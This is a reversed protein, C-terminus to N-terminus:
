RGTAPDGFAAVTVTKAVQPGDKLMAGRFGLQGSARPHQEM